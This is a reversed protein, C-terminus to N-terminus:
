RRVQILTDDVVVDVTDGLALWQAAGPHKRLVEFYEESAFLVVRNKLGGRGQATSDTWATGNQYFARGNVVRVGQAYNTAQAARYGKGAAAGPAAPLMKALGEPRAAQGVSTSNRLEQVAMSNDVAIRGSRASESAAERRMSDLSAKASDRAGRDDELEQFTRLAPAVGRGEEDELILSATYPTVIGFERALRVVEDRLEASEGRMRIEDLLLGVRRTAWLRPIYLNGPEAEPFSVDATFQHPKGGFSGAIRVASPGKGSYRGFVVLMDGNFLDPMSKPLMQTVRVGPNTFSVTINSLVPERIKTFFSAVKVEIDEAPLVYQSVARTEEAIRDLLHTNVDTGIGFCFVRAASGVRRVQEVLPDEGTEGVTPLGDTLFVVMVARGGAAREGVTSLAMALAEGIATGGIATFANVLGTAREVNAASAPVLGALQAEAETSFRIIQFRDGPTLGALCFALSKKAQALKVGAMSGSTDLVFCIDKPAVVGKDATIGPSALLMFYGDSGAPRSALLDIGLPNATRSFIVKFDTDPWADRAEWGVVARRDGDRRIEAPHTPCYVSKLLERGAIAVKVSVDRVPAASFKETNLPYVYEVLGGDDRLLQTYSIRVRKRSGPEIPFIRLKFAGRGVYELLAPDKAKRVIEEYLARAKDAPLLEAERMTGNIDMSFSDIHAGEPLPFIYTGELRSGSPNYFEEDVTTVAVLDMVTVNVRHFGVELPAFGFHGPLSHPPDHVVIFGDALCLAPLALAWGIAIMVAAQRAWGRSGAWRERM